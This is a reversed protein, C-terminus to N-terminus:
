IKAANLLLRWVCMSLSPPACTNAGCPNACGACLAASICLIAGDFFTLSNRHLGCIAIYKYSWLRIIHANHAGRGSMRYIHIHTHSLQPIIKHSLWAYITCIQICQRAKSHNASSTHSGQALLISVIADPRLSDTAIYINASHTFWRFRLAM